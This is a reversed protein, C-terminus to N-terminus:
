LQKFRTSKFNPRASSTERFQNSFFWYNEEEMRIPDELWVGNVVIGKITNSKLRGKVLGHFFRNNEDGEVAWKKRSKRKLSLSLQKEVCFYNARAAKLQSAEEEFLLKREALVDWNNMVM